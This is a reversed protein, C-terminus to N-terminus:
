KKKKKPEEEAPRRFVSRKGNDEDDDDQTKTMSSAMICWCYLPADEKKMTQALAIESRFFYRM